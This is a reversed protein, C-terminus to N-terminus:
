SNNLLNQEQSMILRTIVVIERCRECVAFHEELQGVEDEPLLGDFYCAMDNEDPCTM